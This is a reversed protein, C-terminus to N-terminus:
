GSRILMRYATTVRLIQLAMHGLGGIGIIIATADPRLHARARGIAHFPTLGAGALPAAQVPDLDGLPVVAQIPVVVYEAM